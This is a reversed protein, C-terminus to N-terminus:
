IVPWFYSVLLLRGRVVAYFVSTPSMLGCRNEGIQRREVSQDVVAALEHLQAVENRVRCRSISEPVLPVTRMDFFQNWVADRLQEPQFVQCVQSSTLLLPLSTTRQTTRGTFATSSSCPTESIPRTEISVISRLLAASITCSSRRHALYFRKSFRFHIM